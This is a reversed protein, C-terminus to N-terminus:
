NILQDPIASASAMARWVEPWDLSSTPMGALGSVHICATDDGAQPTKEPKDIGSESGARAEADGLLLATERPPWPFPAPGHPPVPLSPRPLHITLFLACAVAAFACHLGPIPWMRPRYSKHMIICAKYQTAHSCVRPLNAWLHCM